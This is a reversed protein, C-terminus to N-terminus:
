RTFILLLGAQAKAMQHETVRHCLLGPRLNIQCSFLQPRPRWPAFSGLMSRKFLHFVKVRFLCCAVLDIQSRQSPGLKLVSFGFWLSPNTFTIVFIARRPSPHPTHHTSLFYRAAAWTKYCWGKKLGREPPGKTQQINAHYVIVRCSFPLKRWADDNIKKEWTSISLQVM